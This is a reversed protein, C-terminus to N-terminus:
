SPTRWNRLVEGVMNVRAHDDLAENIGSIAHNGNAPGDPFCPGFQQFKIHGDHVDPGEALAPDDAELRVDFVM